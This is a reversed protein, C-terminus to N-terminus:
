CGCRCMNQVFWKFYEPFTLLSFSSLIKLKKGAKMVDAVADELSTAYKHEDVIASVANCGSTIYRISVRSM